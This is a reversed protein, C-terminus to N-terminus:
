DNASVEAGLVTPLSQPAVMAAGIIQGVPVPAKPRAAVTLSKPQDLFVGTAAVIKTEFDKNGIMSVLAPVLLKIQRAYTKSDVGQQKAQMDLVRGTLSADEWRLSLRVVSLSQLLEMQKAQDAEAKKMEEVVAPTLGDVTAAIKLTGVDAAAIALEPIDLRGTKDDWNGSAAVDLRIKEYGLARVPALDDDKPDLPLELGVFGFSGKRPTDGVYDSASFTASSIPVTKGDETTIVIGTVAVKEVREGSIKGPVIKEPAQALYNTLEITAATMKGEDTEFGFGEAVIRDAKYGGDATPVAGVWTTKGVSVTGVKGEAESVVKTGNITFSADDGEVKGFTVEKAGSARLSQTTIAIIKDRTSQASAGAPLAVGFALAAALFLSPRTLSSM